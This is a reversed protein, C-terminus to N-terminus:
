LGLMYSMKSNKKGEKEREEKWKKFEPLKTIDEKNYSTKFYKVSLLKEENEM